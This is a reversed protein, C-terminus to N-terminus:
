SLTVLLEDTGKRPPATPEIDPYGLVILAAAQQNEELGIIDKVRDEDFIGLIVTGIGYEHAALCFTQAAIGADFMQWRDGKKTSYSGDKEFGCRGTVMSLVVLNDAGSLIGKNHEFGMFCEESIRRLLEENQILHYRVIQTNKWSPAFSAAEVIKEVKEPEVKGKKFKRISRRTKICTITDM